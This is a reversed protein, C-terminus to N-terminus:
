IMRSKSKSVKLENDFHVALNEGKDILEFVKHLELAGSDASVEKAKLAWQLGIEKIETLRKWLNDELPVKIAM